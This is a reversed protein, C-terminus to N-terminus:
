PVPPGLVITGIAGARAAEPDLTMPIYEGRRWLRALDDYHRSFPHGSQGTAIVYVSGNPDAFDYVGRFGAAHVNAYPTPGTWEMAGRLLTFEDGSTPLEINVFLSFPFVGGLVQHHQLAVHADGWRWSEMRAGYADTLEVIADDLALRAIEPCTEAQPTKTVDCWIAAGGVDRLVREIFVPEIGSLRDYAPGLEDVALRRQLARVWASWILPEPLHESMEGNWEALRQLVAQRLRGAADDPPPQGAWWLDRAMLPLLARATESVIDTQIEVFSDRSHFERASLLREARLIRQTDGWDFGLHEPFAADTTRNNTNVVIGGPPNAVFPNKEFPLLGVWDNAAVWGPVPLRGLGQHSAQRLPARGAVQLAIGTRDAMVVNQGPAVALAVLERAAAVTRMRMLGMLSEISRDAPDLATWALAAVHGEPTVDRAGFFAGPIIPGHRSRMLTVTRPAEGAVEIIVDRRALPQWGSPTLYTEPAEPNLKEIYIDQDDLYATTLGWGFDANRGIVIAPLGPITAGIADVDAFSLRALFWVGPAALGLHPDTALLTQGTSTRSGMAAFANSAGALGPPALPSLDPRPAAAALPPFTAGPFLSAFPPLAVTARDPYDPLIDGLREPGLLLSLAARRTEEAAQGSLQLAMLKTVAISDAPTWPALADAFLMFEPAGRGRAEAGAIGIWANVGAAYAALAAQVEPTQRKATEVSVGYIDLARMLTDVELTRAGFLESLRGQATRRNMEMQWLRDQAHAFGLAFMADTEGAAFIHPVAHSDRVIEVPATVGELRYRGSYDPLSGSVLYWVLGAALVALVGAALLVRLLWRFVVDM